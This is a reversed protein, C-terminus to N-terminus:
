INLPITSIGDDLLIRKNYIYSLGKKEQTYTHMISNVVRFGQNTATDKIKNFLVDEFKKYTINNNDKQIGKCSFKLAKEDFDSCCYMKSCLAIIKDKMCEVKFLGPTRKEYQKMTFKKGDVNFTPHLENSESPLFNYKDKEYQEKMEPKILKEISDESFAFYNSDTDMEVLEFDSRDIYKDIFDYDFELMRLKALQYVACGIQLPLDLKIERKSSVVEYNKGYLEELDKFRPNNIKKNINDETAYTTSVFGEKNTITKGYASNGFLKMTEAILEYEKDVDGARRADSVEDAFKKFCKESTYEIGVHFKTIKLGHQLYWKLLPTYLTIEKGFYSGILKKSKVFNINNERHYEQMYEGMDEFNVVTNKFIPTMEEFYKKLHEPTEIDVKLFGFVKDNLIDQELKNLNYIEIRKYKGTPMDQAIAWLYLANADYGIAKKCLKNGNRILTKGAEVYRKFIISPGGVIGNKMLDYLDKDEQEFLSFKSETSKMLYKLVLGPLSVGDKFIDLKKNQYFEKMKEVAEIFPIVDLNNYWELFDKFTKMKHENWANICIEYEEDTINKNKLRNYFAEHPPLETENLKSYDTLYDYPFFGKNLKCKYAKIFAEYSYNPALYSRIDLFKFHPTKLAMYSNAKKIAFSVTEDIDNLSKHLYQKMLNIDYKSGNFSLVPVECMWRFFQSYLSNEEDYNNLKELFKIIKKYRIKNLEEAKLSINHIYKIFDDILVEPKENCIFHAQDYGEVNSNVSVSVPIHKNTIKLQKSDDIIKLEQMRSEFDYVIEYPYYLDKETLKFEELYNIKRKNNLNLSKKYAKFIEDFINKQANFYGGNLVYSTIDKCNAEHAKVAKMNKCFKGCNRCKFSHRIHDIDTIYMFHNKYRMLNLTLEYNSMSRREIEVQYEEESNESDIVNNYVNINVKFFKEIKTIEDAKSDEDEDDNDKNYEVYRVGGYNNIDESEGYYENFLRKVSEKVKVPNKKPNQKVDFCFALCRWFCLKDDYGNYKILYKQNSGKLLYEPLEIGAGIPSDMEYVDFRVYNFEYFKWASDERKQILKEVLNMKQIKQVLLDIDKKNDITEPHDLIRTNTSADFFKFKVIYKKGDKEEKILTFAFSINIKYRYKQKNFIGYLLNSLELPEDNYKFNFTKKKEKKFNTYDHNRPITIDNKTYFRNACNLIDNGNPQKNFLFTDSNIEEPRSLVEELKKFKTELEEFQKIKEKEAKTKRPKQKYLFDTDIGINALKIKQNKIYDTLENVSGFNSYNKKPTNKLFKIALAKSKFGAEQANSKKFDKPNFNLKKRGM